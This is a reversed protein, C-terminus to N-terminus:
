IVLVIKVKLNKIFYTVRDLFIFIKTYLKKVIEIDYM